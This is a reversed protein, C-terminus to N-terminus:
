RKDANRQSIRSLTKLRARHAFKKAVTLSTIFQLRGALREPTRGRAQFVFSEAEQLPDVEKIGLEPLLRLSILHTVMGMLLSGVGFLLSILWQAVTLGQLHCGLFYGGFQVMIIQAAILLVWIILWMENQFFNSFVNIENSVKRANIMNFLQMMVFTNFVLTFHRSPGITAEWDKRYDMDKTFPIFHRGSRMLTGSGTQINCDSFECFKAEARVTNSLYTWRTEPVFTDAFFIMILLVIFQYTAQVLISRMMTKNVLYERRSHPPIELLDDTPKETALALSAFSDMILNVWLMQVADLPSQRGILSFTFSLLVAVVNVTLQFQLFRRINNYISRGWKVAQVISFFNDDLLIIDAAQKAIEKGALGMAFGVDAKKLAPADNTGDGTVAVVAGRQKLGTVLAYKDTPQSRALVQLNDAICNFKYMDGLTDERLTTGLRKATKEDTCCNCVETRHLKCVIGGVLRYFDRGNMAVGGTEETFINCQRAIQRATVINDGTVMRVRIGARQCKRVSDPVEKRVPDRIGAIGLCILDTEIEEEENAPKFTNCDIDKYAICITRLAESAFHTIVNKEILSIDDKEFTVATSGIEYRKTCLRLVIEAAGKVYLRYKSSEGQKVLVVTSMLKRKSNFENRQVIQTDNGKNKRIEEYNFGLQTAFQLLACETPSGIYRSVTQLSGDVNGVDVTQEDLYATSNLALADALNQLYDADESIQVDKNKTLDFSSKGNWFSQVTMKNTTLTGTKDSCIENAGGMIECAALRRVYNKDLLMQGISYALSITVALPLGEPVAVVVITIATILFSVHEEIIGLVDDREDVAQLLWMLWFEVVLVSFTLCACLFGLNGIDGAIANLKGQLPTPEADFALKQYMQGIQSAKGVCIVFCTGSGSSVTTGISHITNDFLPTFNYPIMSCSILSAFITLHLKCFDALLVPSNVDHHSSFGATGTSGQQIQIMCEEYTSKAIQEAEGTLSSEDMRLENGYLLLCDAPLEDGTEICLLDGVVLDHVSIEHHSGERVVTCAKEEKVAALKRFQKEKMWDNGATVLVVVLVAVWIAFGEIWEIEPHKSFFFNLVISIVGCGMLVRLTFDRAADFCLTIFATPQRQPLRNEGFQQKRHNIECINNSIGYKTATELRYMLDDQGGLVRYIELDEYYTRSVYAKVLESLKKKVEDEGVSVPEPLLPQKLSEKNQEFQLPFHPNLIIQSAELLVEKKQQDRMVIDTFDLVRGALLFLGAFVYLASNEKEFTFGMLLILGLSIIELMRWSHPGCTRILTNTVISKLFPITSLVIFCGITCFIGSLGDSIQRATPIEGSLLLLPLLIACGVIHYYMQLNCLEGNADHLAKPLYCRRYILAIIAFLLILPILKFIDNGLLIIAAFVFFSGLLYRIKHDYEGRIAAWVRTLLIPSSLVVPVVVLNPSNYILVNSLLIVASYFIGPLVLRRGLDLSIIPEAFYKFLPFENGFEGFCWVAILGNILQMWTLLVPTPFIDQLLWFCFILQLFTLAVLLLGTFFAKPHKFQELSDKWCTSFSKLLAFIPSL